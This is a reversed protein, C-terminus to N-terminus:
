FNCIVLDNVSYLYLDKGFDTILKDINASNKRRGKMSGVREASSHMGMERQMSGHWPIVGALVFCFLLFAAMFISLNHQFEM